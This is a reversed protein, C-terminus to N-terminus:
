MALFQTEFLVLVWRWPRAPYAYGLFASFLIAIPYVVVWYVSADWPERRGTILSSVFWLMLGAAFAIAIPALTKRTNM